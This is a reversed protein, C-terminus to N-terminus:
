VVKGAKSQSGSRKSSSGSRLGQNTEKRAASLSSSSILAAFGAMGKSSSGLKSVKDMAAQKVRAPSNPRAKKTPHRENLPTDSEDSSLPAMAQPAPSIAKRKGKSSRRSMLAASSAPPLKQQLPISHSPSNIDISSSLAWNIYWFGCM